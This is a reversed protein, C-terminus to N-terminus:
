RGRARRRERLRERERELFIQTQPKFDVYILGGATPRFAAFVKPSKGRIGLLTTALREIQAKSIGFVDYREYFIENAELTTPIRDPNDIMVNSLWQLMKLLNKPRGPRRNGKLWEGLLVNAVTICIWGRLEEIPGRVGPSDLPAGTAIQEECLKKGLPCLSVTDGYIRALGATELIDFIRIVESTSFDIDLKTLPFNGGGFYLVSKVIVKEATKFIRRLRWDEEFVFNLEPVFDTVWPEVAEGALIETLDDLIDKAMECQEHLTRGPERIENECLSCYGRM